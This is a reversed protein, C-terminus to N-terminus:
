ENVTKDIVKGLERYTESYGEVMFEKVQMEKIAEIAKEATQKCTKCSAEKCNKCIVEKALIMAEKFGLM